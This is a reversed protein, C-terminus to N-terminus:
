IEGVDWPKRKALEALEVYGEEILGTKADNIRWHLKSGFLPQAEVSVVRVDGEEFGVQDQIARLLNEDAMHGEGFDWGLVSLAVTVGDCYQYEQFPTDGITKPLLMGLVRGQLHLTRFAMFGADGETAEADPLFRHQQQFLLKSARTLKDLKEYSGNHFLWANWAWNGAYYRMALLFSVARPVFNGVLPVILCGILLYIVMPVSGVEFLGVEPHYGFLFIGCYASLMNWEFVAAIPMNSIIFFHLMLFMAIG